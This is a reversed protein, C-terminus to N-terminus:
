LFSSWLPTPFEIPLMEIKGHKAMFNPPPCFLDFIHHRVLGCSDNGFGKNKFLASGWICRTLLKTTKAQLQEWVGGKTELVAKLCCSKSLMCLFSSYVVMMKRSGGECVWQSKFVHNHPLAAIKSYRRRLIGGNKHWQWAIRQSVPLVSQAKRKTVKLHLSEPSQWKRKPRLQAAFIYLPKNQTGMKQLQSSQLSRSCM